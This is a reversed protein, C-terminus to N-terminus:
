EVVIAITSQLFKPINGQNEGWLSCPYQYASTPPPVSFHPQPKPNSFSDLPLRRFRLIRWHKTLHEYPSKSKQM